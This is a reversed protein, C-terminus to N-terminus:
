TRRAIIKGKKSLTYAWDSIKSMSKMLLLHTKAELLRLPWYLHENLTDDEVKEKPYEDSELSFYCMCEFQFNNLTLIFNDLDNFDDNIAFYAVDLLLQLANLLWSWVIIAIVLKESDCM